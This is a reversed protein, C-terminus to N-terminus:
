SVHAHLVDLPGEGHLEILVRYPGSPTARVELGTVTNGFVARFSATVTLRLRMFDPVIVVPPIASHNFAATKFVTLPSVREPTRIGRGGNLNGATLKFLSEEEWM